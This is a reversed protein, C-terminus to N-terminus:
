GAGRGRGRSRAARPLEGLERHLVVRAGARARRARCGEDVRRRGDRAAAAGGRPVGRGRPRGRGHRRVADDEYAVVVVGVTVCAHLYSLLHCQSLAALSSTRPIGDRPIAASPSTLPHRWRPSARSRRRRRGTTTATARPEPAAIAPGPPGSPTVISVSCACCDTVRIGGARRYAPSTGCVKAAASATSSAMTSRLPKTSDRWVPM